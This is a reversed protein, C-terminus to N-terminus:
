RVTVESKISNAIFCEEHSLHHMKELTGADVIVGEAFMIKPHLEVRTVALRGSENREMHGIAQDEYSDVVLRKRAAIALFTLMHCSAIAAVFAEEPDVCSPDGLFAPAAAAKVEEGNDFRWVHSRNYDDYAFSETERKWRITALHESM